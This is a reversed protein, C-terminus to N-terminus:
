MKGFREIRTRHSTSTSRSQELTAPLVSDFQGSRFGRISIWCFFCAAFIEQLGEWSQVRPTWLTPMGAWTPARKTPANVPPLGPSRAASFHCCAAAFTMGQSPLVAHDIMTMDATTQKPHVWKCSGSGPELAMNVTFILLHLQLMSCSWETTEDQELCSMCQKWERGEGVGKKDVSHHPPWRAAHHLM